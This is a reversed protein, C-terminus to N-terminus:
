GPLSLSPAASTSRKRIQSLSIGLLILFCGFFQGSSLHERLFLMGLLAAFVPEVLYILATEAASVYRQLYSQVAFRLGTGISGLYLCCLWAVPSHPAGLSQFGWALLLSALLASSMQSLGVAVPHYRKTIRSLVIIWFAFALASLIGILSGARFEFGGQISLFALGVLAICTGMMTKKDPLERFLAFTIFPVFAADSSVWFATEGSGATRLAVALLAMAVALLVGAGGGEKWLLPSNLVIGRKPVLSLFACAFAFRWVIVSLPSLEAVVIKMVLYNTGTIGALALILLRATNQSIGPTLFPPSDKTM